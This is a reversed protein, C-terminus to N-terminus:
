RGTEEPRSAPREGSSRPGSSSEAPPDPVRREMPNVIVETRGEGTQVYPHPEGDDPPHEHHVAGNRDTFEAPPLVDYTRGCSCTYLM